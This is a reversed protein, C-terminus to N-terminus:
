DSLWRRLPQAASCAQVVKAFQQHGWQWLALPQAHFDALRQLAQAVTLVPVLNPDVIRWEEPSLRRVSAQLVPVGQRLLEHLGSTPVDFGLVLDHRRAFDLLSGQQADVLAQLPLGLHAAMALAASENPRCRLQWAVGHQVCWDRLTALGALYQPLDVLCMANASLGNLVIGLSRLPRVAGGPHQLPEAFDLAAMALRNGDLDVAEGGQLPHHLCLLEHGYSPLAFNFVKAHPLVRVPLRHHRAFSLLAGHVGVDHNSILLQKPPRGSFRAQLAHFLWANHRYGDLLAKVQAQLLREAPLLPGLHESLVAGLRDLCAELEAQWAAPVRDALTQPAVLPCRPLRDTPVDFVPGPLVLCRQGTTLLEDEFLGHDYFCTPLHCLIDVEPGAETPLGPDPLLDPDWAPAVGGFLQAPVGAARLQQYVTLGPVFSHHGYRHAQDPLLLRFSDQGARQALLRGIHTFGHCSLLLMRLWHGCWAAGRAEPVLRAMVADAAGVLLRTAAQAKAAAGLAIDADPLPLLDVQGLGMSHAFNQVVPDLVTVVPRPQGQAQAQRALQMAATLDIRHLALIRDTM